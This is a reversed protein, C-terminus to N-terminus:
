KKTVFEAIIDVTNKIILLTLGITIWDQPDSLDPFGKTKMTNIPVGTSKETRETEDDAAEAAEFVEFMGELNLDNVQQNQENSNSKDSSSLRRFSLNRREPVGSIRFCSARWVCIFFVIFLLYDTPM